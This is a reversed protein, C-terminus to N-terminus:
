GPTHRDQGERKREDIRIYRRKELNFYRLIMGNHRAIEHSVAIRHVATLAAAEKHTSKSLAVRILVWHGACTFRLNNGYFFWMLKVVDRPRMRRETGGRFCIKVMRRPWERLRLYRRAFELWGEYLEMLETTPSERIEMWMGKADLFVNTSSLDAM